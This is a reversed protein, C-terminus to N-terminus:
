SREGGGWRRRWTNPGATHPDDGAASMGRTEEQMSKALLTLDWIEKKRQRDRNEDATPPPLPLVNNVNDFAM